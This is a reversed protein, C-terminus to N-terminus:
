PSRRVWAWPTTRGSASRRSTTWDSVGFDFQGYCDDRYIENYIYRAESVGGAPCSVTLGPSLTVTTNEVKVDM